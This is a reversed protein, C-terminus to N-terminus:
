KAKPLLNELAWIESTGTGAAYFIRKGNPHVMIKDLFKAEIGTEGPQGGAVAIRLLKMRSGREAESIFILHQGDPEFALAGIMAPGRVRYVERGAGGASPMVEIVDDNGETRAFALQSGDLSLSLSIYDRRGGQGKALERENGAGIEWAMVHWLRDGGQWQCYYLTRGDPSVNMEGSIGKVDKLPTIAGTNTDFKLFGYKPNQGWDSIALSKGDPFMASNQAFPLETPFATEAGTQLSQIVIISKDDASRRFFSLWNGDLSMSPQKSMGGTQLSVPESEGVVKGTAPDFGVALTQTVSSTQKYYYAGAATLKGKLAKGLDGKILEPRGQAKGNAVRLMWLDRMVGPYRQDSTFLIANGDPTWRPDEATVPDKFIM